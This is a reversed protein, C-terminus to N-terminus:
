KYNVFSWVFFEFFEMLFCLKLVIKIVDEIDFKLEVKCLEYWFNYIIGDGIIMRCSM